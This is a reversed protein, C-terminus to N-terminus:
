RRRAEFEVIIEVEDGVWGNDVAYSMGFASRTVTGRASVGMVYVSRGIPYDDSKNWAATLTLPQTVGRLELSGDIEYTREGTRRAAEATFRMEPFRGADLFDGSRLHEDRDEHNSSVSATAVVVEVSSLEGTAEDFRYGGTVKLFQGLVKAYGIHDVLFAIVVHEPDLVYDDPEAAATAALAALVSALTLKAHM